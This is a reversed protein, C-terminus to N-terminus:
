GLLVFLASTFRDLWSPRAQAYPAFRATDCANIRRDTFVPLPVETTHSAHAGAAGGVIMVAVWASSMTKFM